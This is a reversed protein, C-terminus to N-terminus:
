AAAKVDFTQKTSWLHYLLCALKRAVAIRAKGFGKTEQLKLGWTKLACQKQSRTLLTTSAEVLLWRLLNDGQKTIRGKIEVDGSQYVSPVLGIYSAVQEASPFRRPDDITAVFAAATAPGVGPVTMLRKIEPNERPVKRSLVHYMRKEEDHLMSWAGLLPEIADRLMQDTDKLIRRVNREFKGGGGAPVIIGHARLLGRITSLMATASKVVQMRATLYSRLNRAEGSKRHVSTYWGTRCLQALKRADLRDTKKKSATVAKAQRVDLIDIVQGAGEVWTCITEALPSAEVVCRLGKYGRLAGRLGEATTGSMCEREIAGEENVVCIAISKNSVDLGCYYKM